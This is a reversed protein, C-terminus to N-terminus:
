RAPLLASNHAHLPRKRPIVTRRAIRWGGPAKTVLDEYIVCGCSGDALVALGKSHVRAEGADGSFILPNTVHHALPNTDGTALASDRRADIGHLEGHGLPTLDYVFADAFLEELRDFAGGDMLHGHLSLLWYIELKDQVSLM